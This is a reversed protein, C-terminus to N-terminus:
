ETEVRGLLEDYASRPLKVVVSTIHEQVYVGFQKDTPDDRALVAEGCDDTAVRDVYILDRWVFKTKCEWYMPVAFDVLNLTLSAKAPDEVYEFSAVSTPVDLM